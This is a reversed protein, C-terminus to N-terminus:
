PRILLSFGIINKNYILRKISPLALRAAEMKTRAMISQAYHLSEM